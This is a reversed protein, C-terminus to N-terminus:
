IADILEKIREYKRSSVIISGSSNRSIADRMISNVDNLLGTEKGGSLYGYTFQPKIGKRHFDDVLERENPGDRTQLINILPHKTEIWPSIIQPLGALGVHRIKGQKILQEAWYMFEEKDIISANPEHLFLFDVYDTNLRKLSMDLSKSARKLSWDVEPRSLSPTFKGLIKRSWVNLAGVSSGIPPYLGIKTSVTMAGRQRKLSVGLDIESLGYGYYPSTDFHTVGLSMVAELLYKRKKSSILHHLSATGYSIRSVNIDTNYINAFQM